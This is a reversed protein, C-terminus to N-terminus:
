VIFSARCFDGHQWTDLNLLVHGTILTAESRDLGSTKFFQIDGFLFLLKGWADLMRWLALEQKPKNDINVKTEIVISIFHGQCPSSINMWLHFLDPFLDPWPFTHNSTHNSTHNNNLNHRQIEKGMDRIVQYFQILSTHGKCNRRMFNKVRFGRQSVSVCLCEVMENHM